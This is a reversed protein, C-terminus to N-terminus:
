KKEEVEEVEIDAWGFDSAEVGQERAEDESDADIIQEGFSIKVKYKPM